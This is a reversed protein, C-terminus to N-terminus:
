RKLGQRMCDQFKKKSKKCRKAVKKFKRQWASKKM